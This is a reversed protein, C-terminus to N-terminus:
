ARNASFERRLADTHEGLGPVPGLAPKEGMVRAPPAPMAVPGSPTAVEVRRLDAHRSLDAVENVRGFAIGAALLKAAM